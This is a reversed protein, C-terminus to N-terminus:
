RATTAGLRALCDALLGAAEGMRPGPRILMDYQATEFGCLRQDSMAALAAWGPRPLYSGRRRLGWLLWGANVCAALGISLTAACATRWGMGLVRRRSLQTVAAPHTDRRPAPPHADPRPMRAPSPSPPLPSPAVGPGLDRHRGM